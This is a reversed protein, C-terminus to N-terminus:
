GSETDFTLIDENYEDLIHRLRGNADVCLTNGHSLIKNKLLGVANVKVITVRFDMARVIPIAINKYRRWLTEDPIYYHASQIIVYDVKRTQLEDFLCVHSQDRCILLGFKKGGIRFVFPEDGRNFIRLEEATLYRKKYYSIKKTSRILCGANYLRDNQCLVTGIIINTDYRAALRSLSETKSELLRYKDSNKYQELVHYANGTLSYEPFIILRSSKLTNIYHKHKELNYDLDDNLKMQILSIKM